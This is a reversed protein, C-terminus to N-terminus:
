SVTFVAPAGAITLFQYWSPTTLGAQAATAAPTQANLRM